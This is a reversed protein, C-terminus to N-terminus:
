NATEPPVSVEVWGGDIFQAIRKELESEYLSIRDGHFMQSESLLEDIYVLYELAKWPSAKRERIEAVHGGPKTFRRPVTMSVVGIMGLATVSPNM